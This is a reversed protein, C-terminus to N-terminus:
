PASSLAAGVEPEPSRALGKAVEGLTRFRVGRGAALALFRELIPRGQDRNRSYILRWVPGLRGFAGTPVLDHLHMDFVLPDPWSAHELLAEYFGWGLLKMWSLSVIFRFPTLTSIPLEWLPLGAPKFPRPRYALYRPSPWISPFVSSDFLFGEDALRQWGASSIRGEPARYGFPRRGLAAEFARSGERIEDLADPRALDHSHSHLHIEAGAQELRRIVDPRAALSQGVVFVTLPASYGELLGLLGELAGPDWSEYTPELRGSFDPELDLTLCLTPPL